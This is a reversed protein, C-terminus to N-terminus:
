LLPSRFTLLDRLPMNLALFKAPNVPFIGCTELGESINAEILAYYLITKAM